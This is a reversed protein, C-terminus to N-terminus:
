CTNLLRQMYPITSRRFRETRAYDVVFKEPNRANFPLTKRPFMNETKPNKVCNLAFSRCLETRRQDLNSLGTIALANEYDVYRDKLIIKLCVKQVRELARTEECTLSSHWVTASQELVLRIYLIYINILKHLPVEFSVLNHLIPVRMYAKKVTADVNDDWSLRDNINVGLLRAESVQQLPKGELSLRTNFQHNKSFNFIM